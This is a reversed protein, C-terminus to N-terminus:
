RSEQEEREIRRQRNLTAMSARYALWGIQAFFRSVVRGGDPAIAMFASVAVAGWWFGWWFGTM